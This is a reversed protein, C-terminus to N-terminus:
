LEYEEGIVATSSAREGGALEKDLEALQERARRDLVEMRRQELLRQIQTDTEEADAATPVVSTARKPPMTNSPKVQTVYVVRVPYPKSDSAARM